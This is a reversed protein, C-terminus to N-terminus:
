VRATGLMQQRFDESVDRLIAVVENRCVIFEWYLYGIPSDVLVLLEFTPWKETASGVLVHHMGFGDFKRDVIDKLEEVLHPPMGPMVKQKGDSSTFPTETPGFVVKRYGLTAHLSLQSAVIYEFKQDKCHSLEVVRTYSKSPQVPEGSNMM